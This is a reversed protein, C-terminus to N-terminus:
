YDKPHSMLGLDQTVTSYASCMLSGPTTKNQIRASDRTVVLWKRPADSLHTVPPSLLYISIVLWGNGLCDKTKM